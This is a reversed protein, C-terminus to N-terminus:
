IVGLCEPRMCLLDVLLLLVLLDVFSSHLSVKVAAAHAAHAQKGRRRKSPTADAALIGCTTKPLSSKAACATWSVAWSLMRCVLQLQRVLSAIEERQSSTAQRLGHVEREVEERAQMDSALQSQM